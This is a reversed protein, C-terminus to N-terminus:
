RGEDGDWHEPELLRVLEASGNVVVFGESPKRVARYQAEARATRLLTQDGMGSGIWLGSGYASIVKFWEDYVSKARWFETAAVLSTNGAYREQSIWDKLMQAEATPLGKLLRVIDVLVLIDPTDGEALSRISCAIDAASTLVHEDDAAHLESALDFFRYSRAGAALAERLGALYRTIEQADNGMVLCSPFRDLPYSAEELTHFSYGLPLGSDRAPSAHMDSAHVHAPMKPIQRARAPSEVCAAALSTAPDDGPSVALAGQFEYLRKNKRVLGRMPMRAPTVDGRTGFISLYDNQDNLALAISTGMNAKLRMHPTMATAATVILYIGYRPADRAIAVLRQEFDPYLEQFAALNTLAVVIDAGRGGGTALAERRADMEREVLRFLNELREGDDSLVVGGCQPLSAMVGLEGSAFDAVYFSCRFADYTRSLSALITMVLSECRADQAGYIILNGDRRFNVMYPARCQEAPMDTEGLLAVVDGEGRAAAIEKGYGAEIQPLSLRGPLPDLWLREAALCHADAIRQIGDLAANIESLGSQAWGRAPRLAAATAGANDILEVADDRKPEFRETPAYPAGAYAAQGGTFYENFGVLLYFRGPDRIEAADARGIMEKSDGADAVKLCVKLRMNSRIQDNVVGSPKQTALILHVGLSRGIRAASMLEDMFEPEQQKLEAFEDAVIFLHPIPDELVGRLYYSIYKYIDMTAEGTVERARNFADQRRKLESKISVLSRSIAAGDLNTITGALHPLRFRENDFAGALGGGKYDILVFAVQDPPYCVALSLVYTIIFESKGSGTTGAILGHPGHVKEHLNLVAPEGQADVGVPAQLTRSADASAWRSAINLQSVNGAEFMELFGLSSPLATRQGPVDLRVRAMCRAFADVHEPLVNIDPAFPLMTGSVDARDFMCAGTPAGGAAGSAITGTLDIVYACERPLDKLEEGMFVLSIGRYSRLRALRAITESPDTLAKNACLVVYRPGADIVDEGRQSSRRELERELHMTLGMLEESTTALYRGRGADDFLHPLSRMCGWESSEAEDAVLMLKVDQYSMLACMQVVLGRMFAWAESRPGVVGAVYHEAPNFALPVGVLQPPRHSVEIVKTLLRDRDVAFQEAPWSIDAELPLSGTGVRLDMFDGHASTRNMLEPSLAAAKDLLAPVTARNEALVAAQAACEQQLTHEIANLYDAYTSERRAEEREDRKREYRKSILPWVLMGSIMSISMALMPLTTMVDAGGALRLVTNAVMFVLALGMIFSPGLKMIAPAEDRKKGQPPGDVTFARKHVSHMLRPAPYFLREEGTPEAPDPNGEKLRGHEIVAAGPVSAELPVSAACNAVLYRHGVMCTFAAIQVVDGVALRRSSKAPLPSGNVLTGNTSGLDELTFSDGRLSLRAHGGSVEPADYRLGADPSRGIVCSFDEVFGVARFRKAERDLQKAQQEAM